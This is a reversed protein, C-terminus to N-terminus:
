MTMVLNVAASNFNTEYKLLILFLSSFVCMHDRIKHAYNV